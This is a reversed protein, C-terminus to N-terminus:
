WDLTLLLTLQQMIDFAIPQEKECMQSIQADTSCLPM